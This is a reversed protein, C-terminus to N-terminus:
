GLISCVGGRSRCGHSREKWRQLDALESWLLAVSSGFIQDLKVCLEGCSGGFVSHVVRPVSVGLKKLITKFYERWFCGQVMDFRRVLAISAMKNLIPDPVKDARSLSRLLLRLLIYQSPGPVAVDRRSTWFPQGKQALRLTFGDLCLM